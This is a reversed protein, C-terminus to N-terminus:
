IRRSQLSMLRIAWFTPAVVTEGVFANALITNVDLGMVDRIAERTEPGFNGDAAEVCFDQQLKQVAQATVDGYEGDM